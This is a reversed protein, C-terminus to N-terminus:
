KSFGCFSYENMACRSWPTLGIAAILVEGHMLVPLERVDTVVTDYKEVARDDLTPRHILNACMYAAVIVIREAYGVFATEILVAFGEVCEAQIRLLTSNNVLFNLSCQITVARDIVDQAMAIDARIQIAISNDVAEFADLFTGAEVRDRSVFM